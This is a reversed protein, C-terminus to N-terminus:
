RTKVNKELREVRGYFDFFSSRYEQATKCQTEVCVDYQALQSGMAKATVMISDYTESILECANKLRAISLKEIGADSDMSVVESLNNEMVFLLSVSKELYYLAETFYFEWLLADEKSRIVGMNKFSRTFSVASMLKYCVEDDFLSVIERPPLVSRRVSAENKSKNHDVIVILITFIISGFLIIEWAYRPVTIEVFIKDLLFASLMCVVNILIAWDTSKAKALGNKIEKIYNRMQITQWTNINKDM